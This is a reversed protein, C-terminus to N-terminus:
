KLFPLWLHSQDADNESVHMRNQLVLRHHGQSDPKFGYHDLRLLPGGAGGARFTIGSVLGPGLASEPISFSGDRQQWVAFFNHNSFRDNSDHLAGNIQSGKKPPRGRGPKKAPPREYAVVNSKAKTM